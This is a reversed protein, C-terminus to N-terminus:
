RSPAAKTEDPLVEPGKPELPRCSFDLLFLCLGLRRGRRQNTGLEPRPEQTWERDIVAEADGCFLKMESLAKERREKLVFPLGDAPYGIRGGWPDKTTNVWTIGMCSSLLLLPLLLSALGM